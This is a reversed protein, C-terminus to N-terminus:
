SALLPRYQGTVESALLKACASRLKYHLTELPFPRDAWELWIGGALLVIQEALGSTDVWDEIIGSTQQRKLLRRMGKLQRDRFDYYISRSETFFILNTQRCFEPLMRSSEHWCDIISFVARPDDPSPSATRGVFLSYESIAETIAEDRPGVLNYITQVAYGSTEAVRRVTVSECGNETLLRRIAALIHSRRLRQNHRIGHAPRDARAARYDIPNFPDYPFDLAKPREAAAVLSGNVAM